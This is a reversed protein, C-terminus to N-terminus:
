VKMFRISYANSFSVLNELFDRYVHLDCDEKFIPSDPIIGSFDIYYDAIKKRAFKEIEEYYDIGDEDNSYITEFEIAWHIFEEKWMIHPIDTLASYLVSMFDFVMSIEMLNETYHNYELKM